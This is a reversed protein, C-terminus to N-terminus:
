SPYCMCCGTSAAEVGSKAGPGLLGDTVSYEMIIDEVRTIYLFTLLVGLFQPSPAPHTLTQHPDLCGERATGLKWFCLSGTM